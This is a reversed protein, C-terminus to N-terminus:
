NIVTTMQVIRKALSKMQLRIFPTLSVTFNFLNDCMRKSLFLIVKADVFLLQLLKKNCYYSDDDYNNENCVGDNETANAEDYQQTWELIQEEMKHLFVLLEEESSNFEHGENM